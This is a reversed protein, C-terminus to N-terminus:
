CGLGLQRKWRSRPWSLRRGDEGIRYDGTDGVDVGNLTMCGSVFGSANVGVGLLRVRWRAPPPPTRFGMRDHSRSPGRYEILGSALTRKSAWGGVTVNKSAVIRGRKVSGFFNGRYRVKASGAGDIFQVYVGGPTRAVTTGAAAVAFLGIVLVIGILFLRRVAPLNLWSNRRQTLSRQAIQLSVRLPSCSKKRRRRLQGASASPDPKKRPRRRM